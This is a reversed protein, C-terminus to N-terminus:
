FKYEFGATLWDKDEANDKSLSSLATFIKLNKRVQHNYGFSTQKGGVVKM